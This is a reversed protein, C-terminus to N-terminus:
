NNIASLYLKEIEKQTLDRNFFLIESIAGTLGPSLGEFPRGFTLESYKELLTDQIGPSQAALKGNIYMLKQKKLAHSVAVFYWKNPELSLSSAVAKVKRSQVEKEPFYATHELHGEENLWLLRYYTGKDKEEIASPNGLVRHSWIIQKQIKDFRVWGAVTYDGTEMQCVPLVNSVSFGNTGDMKLAYGPNDNNLLPGAALSLEDNMEIKLGPKETMECFTHIDKERLRFYFLPNLSMASTEFASPIEYAFQHVSAPVTKLTESSAQGAQLALLRLAKEFVRINSGLRLEVQGKLVHAETNAYQDVLVGFETGYDVISASPTRVIFGLAQGPVKATLKGQILFVQNNNELRVEAPGEVLVIGGSDMQIKVMGKDLKLPEDSLSQGRYISSKSDGFAVQYCDMVQGYSNNRVPAFHVFLILLLLAAASVIFLFLSTKNLRHSHEVRKEHIFTQKSEPKIKPKGTEFNIYLAIFGDKNLAKLM